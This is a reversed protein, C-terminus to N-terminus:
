VLNPASGTTSAFNPYTNTGDFNPSSDSGDGFMGVDLAAQSTLIENGSIDRFKM